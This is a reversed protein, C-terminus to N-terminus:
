KERHIVNRVDKIKDVDKNLAHGDEISLEHKNPDFSVSEGNARNVWLIYQIGMYTVRERPESLIPNM